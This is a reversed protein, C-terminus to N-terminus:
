IILLRFAEISSKSIVMKKGPCDCVAAPEVSCDAERGAEAHLPMYKKTISTIRAPSRSVSETIKTREAAFAQRRRVMILLVAAFTKKRSGM